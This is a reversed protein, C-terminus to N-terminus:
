SARHQRYLDGARTKHSLAQCLEEMSALSHIPRFEDVYPLM